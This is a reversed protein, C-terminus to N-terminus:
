SIMLHRKEFHVIQRSQWLKCSNMLLRRCSLQSEPFMITLNLSATYTAYLVCVSAEWSGTMRDRPLMTESWSSSVPFPQLCPAADWKSSCRRSLVLHTDKIYIDRKYHKCALRRVSEWDTHNLRLTVTVNETHEAHQSRTRESRVQLTATMSGSPHIICHIQGVSHSPTPWHWAHFIVRWVGNM